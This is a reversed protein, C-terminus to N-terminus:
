FRVWYTGNKEVWHAHVNLDHLGDHDLKVVRGIYGEKVDEYTRCCKVTM